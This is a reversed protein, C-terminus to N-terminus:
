LWHEYYGNFLGSGPWKASFRNSPTAGFTANPLETQLEGLFTVWGRGTAMM